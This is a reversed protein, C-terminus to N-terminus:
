TDVTQPLKRTSAVSELSLFFAPDGRAFLERAKSECEYTKGAGAESVILIRQSKLLEGWSIGSDDFRDVWALEFADDKGSPAKLDKFTRDM